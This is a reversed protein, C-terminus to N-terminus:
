RLTGPRRGEPHRPGGSGPLQYRRQCLLAACGDNGSGYFTRNYGRDGPTTANVDTGTQDDPTQNEPDQSDGALGLQQEVISPTQQTQGSQEPTGNETQNGDKFSRLQDMWGCGALAVVLFLVIAGYVVYRMWKMMLGGVKKTKYPIYIICPHNKHRPPTNQFVSNPHCSFGCRLQM